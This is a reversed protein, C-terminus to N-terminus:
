RSLALIGPDSGQEDVVRLAGLRRSRMVQDAEAMTTVPSTFSGHDGLIDRLRVRDTYDSSDRVATLDTRTVLGIRQDDQDCVVLRGTRAAAMVALAVEVTMDDCVQPGAADMVEVAARHVPNADAPRSPLQIRTM